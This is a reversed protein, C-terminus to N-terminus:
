SQRELHGADLCHLGCVDWARCVGCGVVETPRGFPAPSGTRRLQSAECNLGRDFPSVPKVM